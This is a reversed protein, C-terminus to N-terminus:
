AADDRALAPVDGRFGMAGSVLDDSLGPVRDLALLGLSRLARLPRFRNSFLRVLGDSFELTADRDVQRRRAYRELGTAAGSDRTMPTSILLLHACMTSCRRM